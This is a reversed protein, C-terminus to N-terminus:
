KLYMIKRNIIEQNSRVQIFYIGSNLESATWTVSYFGTNQIEDVLRDIEQGRLNYVSVRIQSTNLLSYEINIQPNFPNPYLNFIAFKSPILKENNELIITSCCDDCPITSNEDYEEYTSDMCGTCISNYTNANSCVGCEDIEADGNPIDFCDSCSSNNGGCIDCDDLTNGSCDCFGTLINDCGCEGIPGSGGCVGCSDVVTGGGCVGACDETDLGNCVGACDKVAEGNCIGACDEVSSGNPVGACDLCTSNDGNCVGCEDFNQDDCDLFVRLGLNWDNIISWNTNLDRFTSSNTGISYDIGIPPTHSFAKLGIWFDGSVSWNEESLDYENWGSVAGTVTKSDLINGPLGNESNAWYVITIAGGDNIQYWKFRVIQQGLNSARFKTALSDNQELEFNSEFSGDDWSLEQYSAPLISISEPHILIVSEENNEPYTASVGYIYEQLEVVVVDDVYTSDTLSSALQIFDSNSEDIRYVNYTVNSSEKNIKARIGTTIYPDDTERSNWSSGDFFAGYPSAETDQSISIEDTITHAIIYQNTFNWGEIAFGNWANTQTLTVSQVFSPEPSFLSGITSFAAISVGVSTDNKNYIFVSDVTSNGHIYFLNGMYTICDDSNDCPELTTEDFIADEGSDLIHLYDGEYNLLDSWTLEVNEGNSEVILNSPPPYFETSESYIRFDDIFLGTGIGGDANGDFFAQFRFRINKGAYETIEQLINAEFDPTSFATGPIFEEWIIIGPQPEGTGSISGDDWYDYFQEVWNEGSGIMQPNDDANDEFIIVNSSIQIDDIQLGTLMEDDITSWSPDSYFAFRIIVNQNAFNSLDFTVEHWDQLGSWGPLGTFGNYVTGYGCQFDYPDPANAILVDWTSGNDTSLQVNAQDWGDITTDGNACIAEINEEVAGDTDEIAWKMMATLESDAQLFVEPTDLYQVWTDGYGNLEDDGCWYSRGIYSNFNTENWSDESAVLLSLSFFDDLYEDGNGDGDLMDNRLWFSYHITENLPHEPLTYTPSTIQCLQPLSQNNDFSNMSYDPSHFNIDTRNWCDDIIWGDLDSDFTDLFYNTQSQTSSNQNIQSNSERKLGADHISLNNKKLLKQDSFNNATVTNILIFTVIFFLFINKQKYM